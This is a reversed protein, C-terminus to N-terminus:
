LTHRIFNGLINRVCIHETIDMNHGECDCYLLCKTIVFFDSADFIKKESYYIQSQSHTEIVQFFHIKLNCKFIFLFEGRCVPITAVLFINVYEWM